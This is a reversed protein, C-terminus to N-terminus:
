QRDPDQQVDAVERFKSSSLSSRRQTIIRSSGASSLFKALPEYLGSQRSQYSIHDRILAHKIKRVRGHSSSVNESALAAATGSRQRYRSPILSTPNPDISDIFDAVLLANAIISDQRRTKQISTARGVGM